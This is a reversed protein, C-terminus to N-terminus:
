RGPSASACCDANAAAQYQAVRAYANEVGIGHSIGHFWGGTSFHVVPIGKEMLLHLAQASIQVNGMLVLRSVELLRAGGAKGEETHENEEWRGQVYM